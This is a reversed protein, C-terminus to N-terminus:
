AIFPTNKEDTRGARQFSAVVKRAIPSSMPSGGGAVWVADRRSPMTVERLRHPALPLDHQSDTLSVPRFRRPAQNRLGAARM